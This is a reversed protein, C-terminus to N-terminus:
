VCVFRWYISIPDRRSRPCDPDWKTTWDALIRINLVVIIDLQYM